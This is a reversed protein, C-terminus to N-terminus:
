ADVDAGQAAGVAVNGRVGSPLGSRL